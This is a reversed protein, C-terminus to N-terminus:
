PLSCADRECFYRVSFIGVKPVDKEWEPPVLWHQLNAKVSWTPNDFHVGDEKQNLILLVRACQWSEYVELDLAVWNANGRSTPDDRLHYMALTKQMARQDEETAEQRARFDEYDRKGPILQGM